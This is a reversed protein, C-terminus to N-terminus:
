AYYWGTREDDEKIAKGADGSELVNDIYAAADRLTRWEAASEDMIEIGFAKECAIVLKAVDLTTVGGNADLTLRPSADRQLIDAMLKTVRDIVM